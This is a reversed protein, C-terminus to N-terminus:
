QHVARQHDARGGICQCDTDAVFVSLQLLWAAAFDRRNCVHHNGGGFAEPRLYIQQAPFPPPSAEGRLENQCLPCRAMDGTFDVTCADCHKM